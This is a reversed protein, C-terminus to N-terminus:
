EKMVFKIMKKLAPFAQQVLSLYQCLIEVKPVKIPYPLYLLKGAITQKAKPEQSHQFSYHSSWNYSDAPKHFTRM